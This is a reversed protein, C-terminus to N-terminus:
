ARERLGNKGLFAHIENCTQSRMVSIVCQWVEPRVAIANQRYSSLSPFEIQAWGEKFVRVNCVGKDDTRFSCQAVIQDSEPKTAAPCFWGGCIRTLTRGFRAVAQTQTSAKAPAPAPAPTSAARTARRRPMRKSPAPTAPSAAASDGERMLKLVERAISSVDIASMSVEESLFLSFVFALRVIRGAWRFGSEAAAFTLGLDSRRRV